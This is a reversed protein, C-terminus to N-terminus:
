AGYAAAPVVLVGLMVETNTLVLAEPVGVDIATLPDDRHTTLEPVVHEVVGVNVNPPVVSVTLPAVDLATVALTPTSELPV